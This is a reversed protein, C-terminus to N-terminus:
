QEPDEQMLAVALELRAANYPDSPSYAKPATLKQFAADVGFERWEDYTTWGTDAGYQILVIPGLDPCLNPDVCVTLGGFSEVWPLRRKLPHKAEDEAVLADVIAALEQLKRGSKNLM